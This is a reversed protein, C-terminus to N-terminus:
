QNMVPTESKTLAELGPLTGNAILELMAGGGSSIFGSFNKPNYVSKLAASTDGGGVIVHIGKRALEDLTKVLVHTAERCDPDEYKGPPGNWFIRSAQSLDQHWTSITSTGTDIISDQTSIQSIHKELIQHDPTKVKVHEPLVITNNFKSLLEGATTIMEPEHYSNGIEYGAAKLFTNAIAGCIFVKDAKNLLQNILPLKDKIKAGGLIVYLKGTGSLITNAHALEIQFHLGLFKSSTKFLLPLHYVSTHKRHSASFAENVYYRALNKWRAALEFSGKTEGPEFRTNELLIIRPTTKQQLQQPSNAFTVPQNLLNQLHEAVPKLSYEPERNKPRGLHSLLIINFKHELLQKITPLAIQIRYDDLIKGNDIPVNFDVRVIVTAPEKTLLKQLGQPQQPKNM